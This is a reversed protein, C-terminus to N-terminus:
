RDKGRVGTQRLIENIKEPYVPKSMYCQAGSAIAQEPYVTPSASTMVVPIDKILPHSKFMKLVDLGDLASLRMDLIILDIQKSVAIELATKDSDALFVDFGSLSFIKQYTQLTLYDDDVFLVCPM